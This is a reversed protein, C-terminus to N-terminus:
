MCAAGYVFANSNADPTDPWSCGLANNNVDFITNVPVNTSSSGCTGGVIKRGPPCKVNNLPSYPTFPPVGGGVYVVQPQCYTGTWNMGLSACTKAPSAACTAGDWNGGQSACVKAPPPICTAGDWLNGQSTCTKSPSQICNAGDWMGGQRACTAAPSADNVVCHGNIWAGPIGDPSTVMNCVSELQQTTDSYSDGAYCAVLAFAPTLEFTLHAVLTEKFEVRSGPTLEASQSKLALDGMYILNGDNTTGYSSLNRVQLSTVKLKWEKLEANARVVTADPTPSLRVAVETPASYSGPPAVFSPVCSARRALQTRIAGALAINSAQSAALKNGQAQHNQITAVGLAVVLALSAAILVEIISMGREQQM